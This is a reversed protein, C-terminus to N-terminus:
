FISGSIGLLKAMRWVGARYKNEIIQRSHSLTRSLRTMNHRKIARPLIEEIFLRNWLCTIASTSIRQRQAKGNELAQIRAIKSTCLHILVSRLKELTSAEFYNSSNGEYRYAHENGLIPLVGANWANFLKSAPKRVFGHEDFSRIAIIADIDSYDTNLPSSADRIQLELNLRSLELSFEESRLYPDLNCGDGFYALRSFIDGRSKSRSILGPQPWHPIYASKSIREAQKPNQVVRYHSYPPVCGDAIISVWFQHRSPVYDFSIDCSLAVFVGKEPIDSVLIPNIVSSGRLFAYTQLIWNNRTDLFCNSKLYSELDSVSELNGINPYVFYIDM